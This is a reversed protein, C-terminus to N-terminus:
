TFTGAAVAANPVYVHFVFTTPVCSSPRPTRVGGTAPPVVLLFVEVPTEGLGPGAM